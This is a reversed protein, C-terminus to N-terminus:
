KTLRIFLFSPESSLRQYIGPNIEQLAEDPAPEDIYLIHFRSEIFPRLTDQLSRIYYKVCFPHGANSGWMDEVEVCDHFDSPKFTKLTMFPHHTSIVVLGGPKLVRFMENLLGNWDKLYHIVLSAIICDFTNDKLWPMPLSIDACVIRLRSNHTSSQLRQIWGPSIDVATVSAAGQELAYNTYYGSACGLDLVNKGALSSLCSQMFPREYLNNWSDPRETHALYVDLIGDYQSM